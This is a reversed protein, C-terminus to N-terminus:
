PINGKDSGGFKDPTLVGHLFKHGAIHVPQGSTDAEVFYRGEHGQDLLQSHRQRFKHSNVFVILVINLEQSPYFQFGFTDHTAVGIWLM